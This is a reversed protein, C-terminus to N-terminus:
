QMVLEYLTGDKEFVARRETVELLRHGDVEEGLGVLRGEVNAVSARGALMVARLQPEWRVVRPTPQERVPPPHSLLEPREFPDFHLISATQEALANRAEDAVVVWYTKEPSKKVTAM